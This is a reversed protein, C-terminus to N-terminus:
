PMAPMAWMADRKSQESGTAKRLVWDVKSAKGIYQSSWQEKLKVRLVKM